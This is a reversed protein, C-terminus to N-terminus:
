CVVGDCPCGVIGQSQEFDMPEASGTGQFRTPLKLKLKKSTSLSPPRGQASPRQRPIRSDLTAIRNQWNRFCKGWDLWLCSM